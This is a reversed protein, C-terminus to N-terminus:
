NMVVGARAAYKSVTMTVEDLLGTYDDWDQGERSMAPWIEDARAYEVMKKSAPGALGKPLVRLDDVISPFDAQRPSAEIHEPHM